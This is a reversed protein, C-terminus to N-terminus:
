DYKRLKDNPRRFFKFIGLLLKAGGYLIAGIAVLYSPASTLVALYYCGVSFAIGALLLTGGVSM